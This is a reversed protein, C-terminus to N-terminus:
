FDIGIGMYLRFDDTKPTTGDSREQPGGVRDWTLSVDFDLDKWVDYSLQALAHHDTSAYESLGIMANYQLDFDLKKTLEWSLRTGALLNVGEVTLDEGQSVEDYRTYQYGAGVDVGWEIDHRDLMEYGIGIGPTYSSAINQIKDRYYQLGSPVYFRPTLFVDHRLSARQNDTIEEGESEGYSANVELRTRAMPSRRQVRLFSAVDTQETNGTRLTLGSSWRLSWYDEETQAPVISRLDSRVGVRQGNDTDVSVRDGEVRLRGLVSDRDSFLCLVEGSSYLAYIDEMDLELTNLEDSDFVLRDDQLDEIDGKLWEGNKLQIWDFDGSRPMPPLSKGGEAEPVPVGPYLSADEAYVLGSTLLLITLIIPTWAKGSSM